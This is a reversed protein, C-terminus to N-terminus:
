QDKLLPRLILFHLFLFFISAIALPIAFEQNDFEATLERISNPLLSLNHLIPSIDLSPISSYYVRLPKAIARAASRMLTCVPVVHNYLRLLPPSLDPSAPATTPEELLASVIDRLEQEQKQTHYDSEALVVTSLLLLSAFLSYRSWGIKTAAFGYM